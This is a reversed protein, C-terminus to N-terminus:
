LAESLAILRPPREPDGEDVERAPVAYRDTRALLVLPRGNHDVLRSRPHAPISAQPPQKRAIRDGALVGGGSRHVLPVAGRPGRPEIRESEGTKGLDGRRGLLEPCHLRLALPELVALRLEIPQDVLLRAHKPLEAHLDRAHVPAWVKGARRFSQ